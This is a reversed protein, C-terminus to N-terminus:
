GESSMWGARTAKGLIYAVENYADSGDRGPASSVSLIIWNDALLANAEAETSVRKVEGIMSLNNLDM